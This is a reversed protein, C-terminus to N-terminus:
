FNLRDNIGDMDFLDVLTNLINSNKSISNGRLTLSLVDSDTGISKVIISEKYASVTNKFPFIELRFSKDFLDSVNNLENVGFYFPLDLGSSNYKDTAYEKENINDIIKIGDESIYIDYQNFEQTQTLFDKDVILTHDSGDIWNDPNIEHLKNYNLDYHKLQLNLKNVVKGILNTSKLLEIENELNIMSRNFITMATPLALDREQDLM